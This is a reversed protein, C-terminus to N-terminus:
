VYIDSMINIQLGTPETENVIVPARIPALFRQDNM